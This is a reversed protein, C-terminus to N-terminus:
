SNEKTPITNPEAQISNEQQLTTNAATTKPSTPKDDQSNPTTHETSHTTQEPISTQSFSFDAEMVKETTALQTLQDETDENSENEPELAPITEIEFPSEQQPTPHTLKQFINDNKNPIPIEKDSASNTQTESDDSPQHLQSLEDFTITHSEKNEQQDAHTEPTNEKEYQELADEFAFDFDLDGTPNSIQEFKELNDFVAQNGGFLEKTPSTQTTTTQTTTNQNLDTM